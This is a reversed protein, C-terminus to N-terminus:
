TEAPVVGSNVTTFSHGSLKADVATTEHPSKSSAVSDVASDTM